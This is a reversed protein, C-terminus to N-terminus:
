ILDGKKTVAIMQLKHVNEFILTELMQVVKPFPRVKFMGPLRVSVFTLGHAALIAELDKRHDRRHRRRTIAIQIALGGEILLGIGTYLVIDSM